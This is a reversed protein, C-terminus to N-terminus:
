QVQSVARADASIPNVAAAAISAPRTFVRAQYLSAPHSAYQFGIGAEPRHVLDNQRIEAKRSDNQQPPPLTDRVSGDQESQVHDAGRQDNVLGFTGIWCAPYKPVPIRKWEYSGTIFLHRKKDWRHASTIGIAEKRVKVKTYPTRIRGDPDLPEM